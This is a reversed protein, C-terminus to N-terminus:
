RDNECCMIKTTQRPGFKKDFVIFTQMPPQFDAKIRLSYAGYGILSGNQVYHGGDLLYHYHGSCYLDAPQIKNWQGIAKRLPIHVGGIGGGYKVADGHHFCVPKNHLEIYSHYGQGVKYKVRPNGRVDRELVNYMLWEYSNIAGTSVRIKQTTRGHNGFSTPILIRQKCERQLFAVGANWQDRFFLCEEAPSCSNSEQLEEHIYGTIFDGGAWLVLDKAMPVYREVYEPIKRFFRKIRKEAENMDFSNLGNVTEPRVTEGVHWDSALVIATARSRGKKIEREWAEPCRQETVENLFDFRKEAHEIQQIASEYKRRWNAADTKAKALARDHAINREHDESEALKDALKM